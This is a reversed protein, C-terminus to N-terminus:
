RAHAAVARGHRTVRVGDSPFVISEHEDEWRVRYHEHGPAGLIAVIKGRRASGGHIARAELSDGTRAHAGAEATNLKRETAM